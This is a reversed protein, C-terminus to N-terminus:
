MLSEHFCATRRKNNRITKLRNNLLKIGDWSQTAANYQCIEYGKIYKTSCKKHNTIRIICASTDTQAQSFSFSLLFFILPVLKHPTANLTKLAIRLMKKYWNAETKTKVTDLQFSQVGIAFWAAHGDITKKIGVKFTGPDANTIAPYSRPPEPATMGAGFVDRMTQAAQQRQTLKKKMHTFNKFTFLLLEPPFWLKICVTGHNMM